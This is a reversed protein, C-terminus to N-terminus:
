QPANVILERTNQNWHVSETKLGTDPMFEPVSSLAKDVLFAAKSDPQLESPTFDLQINYDTLVCITTCTSLRLNGRFSVPSDLDNVTLTLPFITDSDYGLTHIGLLEFREPVPWHWTVNDLNGSKQWQLSPAIGGEGPSRWYTKWGNTLKVELAAAVTKDTHDVEGTLLLRVRADPHQSSTLWPTSIAHANLSVPLLFFFSFWSFFPLLLQQPM